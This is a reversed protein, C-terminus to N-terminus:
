PTGELQQASIYCGVTAGTTAGPAYQKRRLVECVQSDDRWIGLQTLADCVAKELNDGDPKKTVWIPAGDKLQGNSRFHSKPRPMFFNMVISVAGDFGVFGAIHPKAAEAIKSKWNEATGDDYVRAVFKDGMKRAFARPRPQGKPIGAVFFTLSKM